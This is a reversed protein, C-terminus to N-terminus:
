SVNSHHGSFDRRAMGTRSHRREDVAFRMERGAMTEKLRQITSRLEMELTKADERDRLMATRESEYISGIDRVQRSTEKRDAELEEIKEVSEHLHEEMKSHERMLDDIKKLAVALQTQYDESVIEANRLSKKLNDIIAAHEIRLDDDKGNEALNIASGSGLNNSV